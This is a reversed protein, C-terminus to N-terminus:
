PLRSLATLVGNKVARSAMSGLGDRRGGRPHCPELPRNSGFVQIVRSWTGTQVSRRSSM